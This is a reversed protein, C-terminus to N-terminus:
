LQQEVVRLVQEAVRQTWPRRSWVDLSTEECGTDDESWADDLRRAVREDDLVATLEDDKRLSRQNMNASGIATVQGDITIIKAHIMRTMHRHISVGARLLEGWYRRGAILSARKDVHRDPIMLAVSVDRRAARALLEVTEDDPVFYPTVIRITRQASAILAHQLIAAPNWGISANSSLVLALVDDIEPPASADRVHAPRKDGPRSALTGRVSTLRQVFTQDDLRRGTDVLNGLAGAVLGRVAPGEIRLQTERWEGPNRADGEWPEAIGVGGTFGVMGDCVLIKRHTRHDARWVAWRAKPRFWAVQVGAEEMREVYEEPMKLAGVADLVVTVDVGARARESLAEAFREAVDGTWYIFTVFTIWRETAAIADLMAPFIEVGNQLLTM